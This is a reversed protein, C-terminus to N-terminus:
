RKYVGKKGANSGTKQKKNSGNTKDDGKRKTELKVNPTTPLVKFFSDLRGQTTGQKAKLLKKAGNRIRDEAFGNEESMFQVLGEEDPKEWKLDIEIAPTVDPEKFLQRAGKYVWNDPVSFKKKDIVEVIKEISKHEQILKIANKPGVGRIKDCYDCGLLICLDIFQDKDMEFGDLIKDYYFEKIPMKRAESCSFYIKCILRPVFNFETFETLLPQSPYIRLIM